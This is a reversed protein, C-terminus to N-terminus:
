AARLDDSVHDRCLAEIESNGLWWDVMGGYSDLWEDRLANAHEWGIMGQHRELFNSGLNQVSHGKDGQVALVCSM